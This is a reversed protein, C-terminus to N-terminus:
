TFVLLSYAIISIIIIIIIVFKDDYRVGARFYQETFNETFFYAVIKPGMAGANRSRRTM